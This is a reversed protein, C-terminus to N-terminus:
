QNIIIATTSTTMTAPSANYTPSFHSPKLYSFAARSPPPQSADSLVNLRISEVM